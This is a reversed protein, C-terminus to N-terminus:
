CDVVGTGISVKTGFMTSSAVSQLPDTEGMCAAMIMNVVSKEFMIKTIPGEERSIGDRRVSTLNGTYTMADVLMQVHRPNVTTGDFSIIKNFEKIFFARAAEVGYLAFIVNVDDCMIKTSNFLRKGGHSEVVM